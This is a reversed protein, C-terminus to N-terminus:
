ARDASRIGAVIDGTVKKGTLIAQRPATVVSEYDKITEDLATLDEAETGFPAIGAANAVALQHIERCRGAVLTDSTNVPDSIEVAAKAALEDNKKAMALSHLDGAVEAALNIMAVQKRNRGKAVGDRPTGQIGSADKISETLGTLRPVMAAIGAFPQWSANFTDMVGLVALSRSFKNRHPTEM